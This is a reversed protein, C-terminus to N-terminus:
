PIQARYGNREKRSAFRASIIRRVRGRWTYVVVFIMGDHEGIAKIRREGYSERTDEAEVVPGAFIRVAAEFGFGRDRFNKWSKTEEWEFM